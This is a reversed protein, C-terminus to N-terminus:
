VCCEIYWFDLFFVSYLCQFNGNDVVVVVVCWFKNFFNDNMVFLKWDCFQCQYIDFGVLFFYFDDGCQGLLYQFMFFQFLYCDVDVKCEIFGDVVGVKYQGLQLDFLQCCVGGIFLQIEFVVQQVLFGGVDVIKGFCQLCDWYDKFYCVFYFLQCWFCENEVKSIWCFDDGFCDVVVVCCFDDVQVVYWDVYLVYDDFYQVGLFGFYFQVKGFEVMYNLYM